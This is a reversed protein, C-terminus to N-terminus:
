KRKRWRAIIWAVAGIGVLALSEPEPVTSPPPGVVGAWGLVPAALLAAFGAARAAIRLIGALPKMVRM